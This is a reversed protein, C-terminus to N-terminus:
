FFYEAIVRATVKIDGPVIPTAAADMLKASEEEELSIRYPSYSSMKEYVAKIGKITVGAGHAIAAAKDRAQATAEKLAQLQLAEADELEFFVSLIRNVGAKVATDIVNGVEELDYLTVNLENYARYKTIYRERNQPDIIQDYSSLRYGSTKLQKEDLGLTALADLVAEMLRANEKAASSASEHTTEVALVVRAIDPKATIVAEGCVSIVGSEEEAPNAEVSPPVVLGMSLVATLLILGMATFMAKKRM